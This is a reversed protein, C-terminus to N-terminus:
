ASVLMVDTESPCEAGKSKPFIGSFIGSASPTVSSESESFSLPQRKTLGTSDALSGALCFSTAKFSSSIAGFCLSASGFCLSTAGFCLLAASFCPSATSFCAAPVVGAVFRLVDAPVGLVVVGCGRVFLGEDAALAEGADFLTLGPAVMGGATFFSLVAGLLDCGGIALADVVAVVVSAADRFGSTGAALGAVVLGAVASLAFGGDVVVSFAFGAAGTTVFFTAGTVALVTAGARGGSVLVAGLGEVNEAGVAGLAEEPAEVLRGAVEPVVLVPVAELTALVGALFATSVVNFVVARGVATLSVLSFLSVVFMCSDPVLFAAPVTALLVLVVLGAAVDVRLFTAAEFVPAAFAAAGFVDAARATGLGPFLFPPAVSGLGFSSLLCFPTGSSFPLKSCFSLSCCDALGAGSTGGSLLPWGLSEPAPSAAATLDFRNSGM